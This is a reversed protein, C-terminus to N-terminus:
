RENNNILYDPHVMEIVTKRVMDKYFIQYSLTKTVLYIGYIMLCFVSFVLIFSFFDKM